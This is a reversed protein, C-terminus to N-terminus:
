WEVIFNLFLKQTDSAEMDTQAVYTYGTELKAKDSFKTVVKPAIALTSYEDDAGLSVYSNKFSDIEFEDNTWTVELVLQNIGVTYKVYPSVWLGMDVNSDGYLFQKAYVGAELVDAKYEVTEVITTRGFDSYDSLGAAYTKTKTAGGEDYESIVEAKAEATLTLGPILELYDFGGYVGMMEGMDMKLGAQIGFPAMAYAFGAIYTANAIDIADYAPAPPAAAVAGTAKVPAGIAFGLNLGEIPKVQVKIGSPDYDFEGKGTTRWANDDIKYGAQILLMSDMLSIYTFAYDVGVKDEAVSSLRFKAGNAGSKAEAGFRLRINDKGADNAYNWLLPDEYNDGMQYVLGTQLSGSFTISPTDQAFVAGVVALSLLFILAKKM